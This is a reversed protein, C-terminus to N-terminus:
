DSQKIGFQKMGFQDLLQRDLAPVGNDGHYRRFGSVRQVSSASLSTETTRLDSRPLTSRSRVIGSGSEAAFAPDGIGFFM